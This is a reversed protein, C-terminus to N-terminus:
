LARPMSTRMMSSSISSITAPEMPFNMSTSSFATFRGGGGRVIQLGFRVLGLRRLRFRTNYFTLFARPLRTFSTRAELRKASEGEQM